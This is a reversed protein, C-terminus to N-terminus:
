RSSSPRFTCVVNTGVNAIPKDRDCAMLILPTKTGDLIMEDGPQCAIQLESLAKGPVSWYHSVSLADQCPKPAALAPDCLCVVAAAFALSTTRM